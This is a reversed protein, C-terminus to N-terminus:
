SSLPSVTLIIPSSVWGKAFVEHLTVINEHRLEQTAAAATHEEAQRVRPFKLTGCTQQWGLTAALKRPCQSPAYMKEERQHHSACAILVQLVRIEDIASIQVGEQSRGLKIKKIAVIRGTERHRAKYVVGFTGEGVQELKEWDEGANPRMCSAKEVMGVCWDWCLFCGQRFIDFFASAGGEDDADVAVPRPALISLFSLFLFFSHGPIEVVVGQCSHQAVKSAVELRHLACEAYRRM